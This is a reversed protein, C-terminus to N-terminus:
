RTELASKTNAQRKMNLFNQFYLLRKWFLNLMKVEITEYYKEFIHLMGKHDRKKLRLLKEIVNFDEQSSVDEADAKLDVTQLVQSCGLIFGILVFAFTIKFIKIM